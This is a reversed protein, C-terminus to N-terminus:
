WHDLSRNILQSTKKIDNEYFSYLFEKEKKSLILEKGMSNLRDIKNAIFKIYKVPPFNPSIFPKVKLWVKEIFSLFRMLIISKPRRYHNINSKQPNIIYKRIGIFNFIDEWTKIKNLDETLIIKVNKFNECYANTSEYSYGIEKLDYIWAHNEKVRIKSLNFAEEFSLTESKLRISMAYMSFVRQIPSRLFIIIKPEEQNKEKYINKINIISKKYYYFYDNSIDGKILHENGIFLNLYDNLDRPGKNQYEAALGGKFNRPMQSFFRCEKIKPIFIKSQAVLTKYASTTGCKAAGVIIFEPLQNM